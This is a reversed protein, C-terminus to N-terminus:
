LMEQSPFTDHMASGDVRGGCTGVASIGGGRLKRYRRTPMGSGVKTGLVAGPLEEKRDCPNTVVMDHSRM